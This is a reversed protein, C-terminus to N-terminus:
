LNWTKASVRSHPRPTQISIPWSNGLTKFTVALSKGALQLNSGIKKPFDRNQEPNAEAFLISAPKRAFDPFVRAFESVL